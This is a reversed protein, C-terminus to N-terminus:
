KRLKKFFDKMLKACSDALVGNISSFNHNLRADRGMQYLSDIGGFKPDQAGYIVSDIRAQVMASACMFCPELTSYITVGGLRWGGLVECARNLVLIEAHALFNMSLERQNFSEAIIQGKYVALAGVPVEGLLAAKKALVLARDMFKEHTNM